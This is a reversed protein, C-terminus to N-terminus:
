RRSTTPRARSPNAVLEVLDGLLIGREHLELHDAVRALPPLDDGELHGLVRSLECVPRSRVDEVHRGNMRALPDRGLDVATEKMVEDVVVALVGLHRVEDIRALEPEDEHRVRVAILVREVGLPKPALVQAVVVAVALDRDAVADVQIAVVVLLPVVVVLSRGGLERAIGVAPRSRRGLGLRHRDLVEQLSEVIAEHDRVVGVTRQQEVHPAELHLRRRRVVRDVDRQGPRVRLRRDRSVVRADTGVQVDRVARRVVVRMRHRVREAPRGLEVLAAFATAEDEGVVFREDLRLEQLVQRERDVEGLGRRVRRLRDRVEAVRRLGEIEVQRRDIGLLGVVRQAIEAERDRVSIRLGHLHQRPLLRPATM